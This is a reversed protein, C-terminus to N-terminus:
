ITFLFSCGSWKTMYMCLSVRNFVYVSLAVTIALLSWEDNSPAMQPFNNYALKLKSPSSYIYKPAVM